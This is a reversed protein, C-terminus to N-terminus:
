GPILPRGAVAQLYLLLGAAGYLLAVVAVILSRRTAPWGPCRTGLLWALLPLLQMAHLGVFHAIRLDGADLSWNVFPIGPGGDPAGVTHSGNQVLLVGEYSALLFILLGLRVALLYPGPLETRRFLFLLWLLGILATNFGIFSSTHM